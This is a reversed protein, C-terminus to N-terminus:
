ELDEQPDIKIIAKNICNGLLEFLELSGALTETDSLILMELNIDNEM